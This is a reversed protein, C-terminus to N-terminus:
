KDGIYDGDRKNDWESAANNCLSHKRRYQIVCLLTLM